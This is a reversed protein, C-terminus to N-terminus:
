CLSILIETTTTANRGVENATHTALALVTMAAIAIALLVNAAILLRFSWRVVRNAGVGMNEKVFDFARPQQRSDLWREPLIYKDQPFPSDESAEGAEPRPEILGVLPELKAQITIGELFRQYFRDCMRIATCCLLINLMPAILVALLWPEGKFYYIAALSAGFVAAILTFYQGSYQRHLNLWIAEEGRIIKYIEFARSEDM